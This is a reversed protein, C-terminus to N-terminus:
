QKELIGNLNVLSKQYEARVKDDMKMFLQMLNM